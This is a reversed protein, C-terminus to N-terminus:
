DIAVREWVDEDYERILVRCAAPHESASFLRVLLPIVEEALEEATPADPTREFTIARQVAPREQSFGNHCLRGACLCLSLALIYCAHSM